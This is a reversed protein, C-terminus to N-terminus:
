TKGPILEEWINWDLAQVHITPRVRELRNLRLWRQRKEEQAPDRSIEAVRRALTRIVATDNPPFSM